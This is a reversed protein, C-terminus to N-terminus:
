EWVYREDFAVQHRTLFERYEDQFTIRKHHEEQNAIYAKVRPLISESVSFAAYGKQWAFKVLYPDKLEAKQEKIWASSQQKVVQVVRSLAETRSLLFLLHVHDIVVGVSIAPCGMQKLIGAMYSAVGARLDPYALARVRDNTSFTLHIAINSLSQPM